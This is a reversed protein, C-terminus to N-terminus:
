RWACRAARPRPGARRGRAAALVRDDVVRLDLGSIASASRCGPTASFRARSVPSATSRRASPMMSASAPPRNVSRGNGPRPPATLRAAPRSSALIASTISSGPSASAVSGTGRRPRPGAPGAPGSRSPAAPRRPLALAPRTRAPWAASSASRRRHGGRDVAQRATRRASCAECRHDDLQVVLEAGGREADGPLMIRPPRSAAASAKRASRRRSRGTGPPTSTSGAAARYRFM